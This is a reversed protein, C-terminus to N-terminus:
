RFIISINQDFITNSAYIFIYLTEILNRLEITSVKFSITLLLLRERSFAM